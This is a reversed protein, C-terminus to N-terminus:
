VIVCVGGGKGGISGREQILSCTNGLKQFINQMFDRAGRWQFKREFGEASRQLHFSPRPSISLLTLTCNM